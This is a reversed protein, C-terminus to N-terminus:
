RFEDLMRLYSQKWHEPAAGERMALVGDQKVDQV